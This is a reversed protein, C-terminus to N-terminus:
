QVLGGENRMMALQQLYWQAAEGSPVPFAKHAEKETIAKSRIMTLLATRWGLFKAQYVAGYQTFSMIMWETMAPWQLTAVRLLEPPRTQEEVSLDMQLRMAEEAMEGAVDIKRDAEAVAGLKRLAKASRALAEGEVRLRHIKLPRDDIIPKQGKWEPNRVYVGIRGSKATSSTRVVHEGLKIRGKGVVKGLRDYWQEPTLIRGYRMKENEDGEWRGQGDWKQPKSSAEALEQMAMTREIAAHPDPPEYVELRMRELAEVVRPHRGIIDLMQTHTFEEETAPKGIAVGDTGAGLAIRLGAMAEERDPDPEPTWKGEDIERAAEKIERDAWHQKPKSKQHPPIVVNGMEVKAM